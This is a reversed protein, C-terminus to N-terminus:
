GSKDDCGPTGRQGPIRPNLLCQGGFCVLSRVAGILKKEDCCWPELLSRRTM